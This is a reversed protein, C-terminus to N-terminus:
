GQCSVTGQKNCIELNRYYLQEFQVGPFLSLLGICSAVVTITIYESDLIHRVMHLIKELKEPILSITM